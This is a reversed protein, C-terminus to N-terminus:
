SVDPILNNSRSTSGLDGASFCHCLCFKKRMTTTAFASASQSHLMVTKLTHTHTHVAAQGLDIQRRWQKPVQRIQMFEHAAPVAAESFM